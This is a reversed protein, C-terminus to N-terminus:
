RRCGDPLDPGSRLQRGAPSLEQLRRDVVAPNLLGVHKQVIKVDQDIVFTTPLGTMRYQNGIMGKM